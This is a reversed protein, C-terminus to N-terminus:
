IQELLSTLLEDKTKNYKAMKEKMLQHTKERLYFTTIIKKEKDDNPALQITIKPEIKKRAKIM